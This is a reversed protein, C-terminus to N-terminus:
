AAMRQKWAARAAENAEPHFMSERLEVGWGALAAAVDEVSRCLAWIDVPPRINLCRDRFDRQEPRLSGTPTKLEVFRTVGDPFLFQIDPWGRRVGAAKMKKAAHISVRVGAANATWEISPPLATMLYQRVQVQLKHEPNANKRPARAM